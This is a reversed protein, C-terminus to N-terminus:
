EAPVPEARRAHGFHRRNLHWVFWVMVFQISVALGSIAWFGPSFKTVLGAGVLGANLWFHLMVSLAVGPCVLAYAGSSNETGFIYQGWYGQRNLVVLGLLLFVVQVALLRSLFVLTEIGAIEADFTHSMGHEQRLFMIGLVTMIPIVVLLTPGSERSTGYHLMSNFGTIAAVVGYLMAAVGFFTSGILSVGATLPVESMAAPAAFGVAVMALAFTPLLQAFSNHATVDFVGGRTLVRGLFDGLQRFAIWGVLAFAILALPFLYEVVSWLRPVLALGLVFGVNVAMALTLPMALLQTEANTTTLEHWKPTGKLRRYQVINWILLKYHVFALITIGLYALVIMGQVPLGGALFVRAVDEFVPVPHAPHDVWFFLYMFFTVSLGGAGLSALFYLPSYRDAPRSVDVHM